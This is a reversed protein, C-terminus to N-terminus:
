NLTLSVNSQRLTLKVNFQRQVSTLSVDALTSQKSPLYKQLTFTLNKIGKENITCAPLFSILESILNQIMAKMQAM